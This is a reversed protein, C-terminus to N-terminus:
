ECNELAKYAKIMRVVDDGSAALKGESICDSILMKGFSGVLGLETYGLLLQECRGCQRHIGMILNENSQIDRKNGM